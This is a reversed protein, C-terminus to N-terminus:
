AAINSNFFSDLNHQTHFTFVDWGTLKAAAVIKQRIALLANIDNLWGLAVGEAPMFNYLAPVVVTVPQGTVHTRHLHELSRLASAKWQFQRRSSIPAPYAREKWAYRRNEAGTQGTQSRNGEM